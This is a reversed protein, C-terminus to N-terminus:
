HDTHPAGGGAAGRARRVQNLTDVVELTGSDDSYACLWAWGSGFHKKALDSLQAVFADVSGFDRELAQRLRPQLATDRSTNASGPPAMTKM